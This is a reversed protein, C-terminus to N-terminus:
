VSNQISKSQGKLLLALGSFLGTATLFLLVSSGPFVVEKLAFVGQLMLILENLIVSLTFLYIGVKAVLSIVQILKRAILYGLIFLTVIGLLVLHLYGIVIPRFGFAFYTLSPVLSLSQLILKLFFAAGALAWLKPVLKNSKISSWNTLRNRNKLFNFLSLWQLLVAAVAALYCWVPLRMWLASLFFAPLCSVLFPLFIARHQRDTFNFGSVSLYFLFLGALAFIFWGNYQFHLFFYISGIYWEQSSNHTSMLYALNFAGLSSLAYFALSSLLWNKLWNPMRSKQADKYFSFAFLYSVFISGTSFIIAIVTYGGFPFSLLMGYNFFQAIWLLSTYKKTPAQGYYKLIELLCISLALSVWGSFAFHSHAHLLNKQHMIPLSFAIKYRLLLGVSSVILLNFLSWRAWRVFSFPM